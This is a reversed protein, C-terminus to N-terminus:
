CRERRSLTPSAEGNSKQVRIMSVCFCLCQSRANPNKNEKSEDRRYGTRSPHDHGNRDGLLKNEGWEELEQITPHICSEWSWAQSFISAIDALIPVSNKRGRGHRGQGSTGKCKRTTSCRSACNISAAKNGSSLIKRHRQTTLLM